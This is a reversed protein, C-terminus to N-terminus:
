LGEQRSAEFELQSRVSQAIYHCSISHADEAIEYDGTKTIVHVCVDSLEKLSGGEFGVMTLLKLGMNKAQLACKILNPSNGSASLAILVDGEDALDCVQREFITEFGFDNGIATVRSSSESLCIARVKYHRENNKRMLDAAFHSATASSGGNGIIWIRKNKISAVVISNIVEQIIKQSVTSLASGVERVYNDLSQLIDLGRFFIIM